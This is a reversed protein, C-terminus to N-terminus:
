ALEKEYIVEYMVMLYYELSCTNWALMISNILALSFATVVGRFLPWPKESSLVFHKFQLLFSSISTADHNCSILELTPLIEGDINIVGAYYM